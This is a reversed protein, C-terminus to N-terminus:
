EAGTLPTNRYTQRHTVIHTHRDALMDRSNNSRDEGIKKHMDGTATARDEQPPTTIRQTSGTKHIVDRKDTIPRIAYKLVPASNSTDIFTKNKPGTTRVTASPSPESRLQAPQAYAVSFLRFQYTAGRSATTWRYSTANGAVTALPVWRGVTRYQIDYRLM